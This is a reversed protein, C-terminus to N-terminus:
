DETQRVPPIEIDFLEVEQVAGAEMNGLRMNGIRVRVLRLVPFGIASCMKRVQRFKGEVITISAWSTPGHRDDRVKKSRPAFDPEEILLDCKAPLTMYRKGHISIAVGKRLKELDKEGIVGDLQVYYEKEIKRSSILTSVKGNTTLLLLGESDQDLRGIAMTKEPFDYLSGLLTRQKRRKENNVFQSLCGYPKNLIFHRYRAEAM